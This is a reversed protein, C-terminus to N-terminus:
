TLNEIFKTVERTTFRYPSRSGCRVNSPCYGCEKMMRCLAPSRANQRFMSYWHTQKMHNFKRPSLTLSLLNEIEEMSLNMQKLYYVLVSRVPFPLNPEALAERICHPIWEERLGVSDLLDHINDFPKYNEVSHPDYLYSYEGLQVNEKTDFESIDLLQKGEYIVKFNPKQSNIRKGSMITARSVSTCYNKAKPNYTGIIRPMRALDGVSTPDLFVKKQEKIHDPNEIKLYVGLDKELNRAFSRLTPKGYKPEHLLWIYAHYGIGSEAFVSKYDNEIVWRCIAQVDDLAREPDKVM